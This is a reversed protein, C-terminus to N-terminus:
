SAMLENLEIGLAEAVKRLMSIRPDNSKMFQFAAQRAMEPPYGMRAGLEALTLGSKKFMARVRIMVPDGKAKSM